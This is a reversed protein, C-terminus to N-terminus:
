RPLRARSAAEPPDDAARSAPGSCRVATQAVPAARRLRRERLRASAPEALAPTLTVVVPQQFAGAPWSVTSIGDASSVSGASSQSRRAPRRRAPRRRRRRTGTTGVVAGDVYSSDVEVDGRGLDRRPRGPVPAAAPPKDLAIDPVYPDGFVSEVGNWDGIWITTPRPAPRRWRSCTACRRPPAATSAPSTASRTSSPRGRASSARSRSPARRTTSRTPRWTSTSRAASPSRRARRVRNAADDAAATGQSAASAPTSGPSGTVPRRVAGAPRRLAPDPELRERRRGGGLHGLAAPERLGPEAGGIYIGLARYPSALWASLTAQSPANCADFAYGTFTSASSATQSAAGGGALALGLGAASDVRM